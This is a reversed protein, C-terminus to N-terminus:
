RAAIAPAISAADISIYTSLYAPARRGDLTEDGDAGMRTDFRHAIRVDRM